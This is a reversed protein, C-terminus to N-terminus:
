GAFRRVFQLFAELGLLCGYAIGLDKLAKGLFVILLFLHLPYRLSGGAIGVIDFLPNPIVSFAFLVFGGRRETWGALRRYLPYREVLARGSFGALYGTLEGLAEGAGAVIAIVVPNLQLLPAGACVSALGPVPVVISASGILSLLFVGPYTVGQLDLLSRRFVVVTIVALVVVAIALVRLAHERRRHARQRDPAAEQGPPLTM